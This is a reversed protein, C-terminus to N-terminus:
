NIEFEPALEPMIPAMVNVSTCHASSAVVQVAVLDCHHLAVAFVGPVAVAHSVAEGYTTLVDDKGVGADYWVM